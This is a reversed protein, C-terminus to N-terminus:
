SGGEASQHESSVSGRGRGHHRTGQLGEFTGETTYITAHPEHNNKEALCILNSEKEFWVAGCWLLCM